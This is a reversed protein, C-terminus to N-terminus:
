ALMVQQIPIVIRTQELALLDGDVIKAIWKM